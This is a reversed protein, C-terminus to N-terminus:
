LEIIRYPKGTKQLLPSSVNYVPIGTATVGDATGNHAHGHFVANVRFRNIPEELRSSGMFPFIEDPEGVVTQRIPSYHLVVVKKETQLKSLGQELRVAHDIAEQVFKKMLPEGWANLMRRGFGGAFGCVGAFGVGEVEIADGDLMHVGAQDLVQLVLEQEGSEFDHNGLVAIVPIRVAARLDSVLQEAEEALGFDTLDGCLLFVDASRSIEAFVDHLQGRSHKGYHVDAIAAIRLKAEAM